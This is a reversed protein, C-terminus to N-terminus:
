ATADEFFETHLALEARKVDAVPVVYTDEPSRPDSNGSVFNIGADHLARTARMSVESRHSMIENGVVRVSGYQDFDVHAIKPNSNKIAGKADELVIDRKVRGAGSAEEPPTVYVTFSDTGGSTGESHFGQEKLATLAAAVTGEDYDLGPYYTSFGWLDGRGAIGLAVNGNEPIRTQSTIITGPELSDDFTNFISTDADAYSLHLVASPHIVTAGGVGLARQERYDLTQVPRASPVLSPNATHVGSVDTYNYHAGADPNFRTLIAATTDSGGRQFTRIEGNPGEGYYGAFVAPGSGRSIHSRAQRVYQETAREDLNGALDFKIVDAAELYPLDHNEAFMRASYHEGRSMLYARPLYTNKLDQDLEQVLATSGLAAFRGLIADRVGSTDQELSRLFDFQELLDTVKPSGDALRGPASLVIDLGQHDAVDRELHAAFMEISEPTAMTTGGAKAVVSM